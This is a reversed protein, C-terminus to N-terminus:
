IKDTESAPTYRTKLVSGPASKKPYKTWDFVDFPRDVQIVYRVETSAPPTAAAASPTEGRGHLLAGAAFAAIACLVCAAACQWVQVPQALWRRRPVRPAALLMEIRRDLADSPARLPAQRLLDEENMSM